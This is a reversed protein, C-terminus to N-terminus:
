SPADDTLRPVLRVRLAQRARHLRVKVVGDSVGLLTAVSRTDLEEVDRLMIVRQYAEPLQEICALLLAADERQELLEELSFVGADEAGACLEDAHAAPTPELSLQERSRRRARLKSLAANVTIRHLWTSLQCREEFGDLATVALAFADQVTDEADDASGLLRRAVALLRPTHSRITQEFRQELSSTQRNRESQAM